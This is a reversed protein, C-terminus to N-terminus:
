VSYAIVREGSKGGRPAVNMSKCSYGFDKIIALTAQTWETSSSYSGSGTNKGTEILNNLDGIAQMASKFALSNKSYNKM